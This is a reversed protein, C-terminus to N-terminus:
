LLGQERLMLITLKDGLEESLLTATFGTRWEVVERAGEATEQDCHEEPNPGGIAVVVYRIGYDSM